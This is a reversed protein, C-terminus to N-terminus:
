PPGDGDAFTIFDAGADILMNVMQVAEEPAHPILDGEGPVYEDEKSLDSGPGAINLVTQFIRPGEIVGHDIADRLALGEDNRAASIMASTVGWTLFAEGYQWNWNAKADVLRPTSMAHRQDFPQRGEVGGIDAGAIVAKEGAGTIVVVGVGDDAALTDLAELVETRVQENLANLKDPRNITLIATRGEREILITEPM